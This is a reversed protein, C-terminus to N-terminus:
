LIRRTIQSLKEAIEDKSIGFRRGSQKKMKGGIFVTDIDAATARSILLQAPDIGPLLGPIRVMILDAQKGPILSGISSDLGATRAGEITAWQLAEYAQISIAELSEGTLERAHQHDRYRQMQLAFRIVQFMDHSSSTETDVGLSPKGGQARILGTIGPRFGMQMEVEPTVTFTAGCEVLARIEEANLGNGHVINVLPTIRGEEALQRFQTSSSACEFHMSIIQRLAKARDLEQRVQELPAYAPGMISMGITLLNGSGKPPTIEKLKGADITRLGERCTTVGHLFLARIGADHLAALAADAHEATPTNHCWDVITTVGAEIQDFAAAYTAWYMDEPSFKPGMQGLIKQLYDALTWNTALGRLPTQWSHLHANVLGPMLLMGSADIEVADEAHPIHGIAAISDEDILIDGKSTAPIASDMSLVFGGRILTKAM